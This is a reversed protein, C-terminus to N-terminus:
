ALLAATCRNVRAAATVSAGSMRTLEIVGGIVAVSIPTEDAGVTQPLPHRRIRHPAGRLRDLNGVTHQEQRRVFRGKGGTRVVADVATRESARPPPAILFPFAISRDMLPIRTRTVAPAEPMPRLMESRLREPEYRRYRHLPARRQELLAVEADSDTHGVYGIPLLDRAEEIIPDRRKASKSTRTLLAPM